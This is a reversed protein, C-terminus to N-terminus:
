PPGMPWLGTIRVYQNHAQIQGAFEKVGEFEDCSLDVHSSRIRLQWKQEGYDVSVYAGELSFIDAAKVTSSGWRRVFTVEGDETVRIAKVKRSYAVAAGVGFVVFLLDGTRNDAHWFWDVSLAVFVMASIGTVILAGIRSHVQYITVIADEPQKVFPGRVDEM